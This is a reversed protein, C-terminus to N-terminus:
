ENEAWDAVMRQYMDELRYKPLWGLSKLKDTNLRTTVTPAYGQKAADKPIEVVVSIKGNGIVQAVINAMERITVTAAHNAINYAEGNKGNLLLILLGLVADATYCCNTVSDGQTHLVINEGALAKRAFQMPARTNTEDNPTGAGFTMALRAIKVQINYQKYYAVCMSECFRKSEPYSTRPNSLDLYGLDNETVEESTSIQGYVEMSSLNVLSKCHFKKAYELINRTGDVATSMVDVPRVVMDASKTIAACHFIYDIRETIDAFFLPNRIDGEIFMVGCENKLLNGKATDRGHAIVCMSLNHYKNASSLVRVLSGGVLGTAGTVLIFSGAFQKWNIKDTTIIQQIDENFFHPM